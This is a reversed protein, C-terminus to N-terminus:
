APTLFCSYNLFTSSTLRFGAAVEFLVRYKQFKNNWYALTYLTIFILIFLYRTFESESHNINMLSALRCRTKSRSYLNLSSFDNCHLSSTAKIIRRHREGGGGGAQAAAAAPPPPPPPPRPFFSFDGVAAASADRGCKGSRCITFESVVAGRCSFVNNLTKVFFIWKAATAVSPLCRGPEPGPGPPTSDIRGVCWTIRNIFLVFQSLLSLALSLQFGSFFNVFCTKIEFSHKRTLVPDHYWLNNM